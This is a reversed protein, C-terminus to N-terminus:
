LGHEPIIHKDYAKFLTQTHMRKQVHTGAVNSADMLWLCLIAAILTRLTVEYPCLNDSLVYCWM